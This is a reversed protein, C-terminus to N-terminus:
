SASYLQLVREERMVCRYFSKCTVTATQMSEVLMSRLWSDDGGDAPAPTTKAIRLISFTDHPHMKVYGCYNIEETGLFFMTHMFYEVIKGITYDENQLIVDFSNAMTSDARKINIKDRLLNIRQILIAIGRKLLDTNSFVGITQVRMDFSLPICYRQGDLLQWDRYAFDKEGIPGKYNEEFAQRSREVDVTNAFSCTGVSTYSADERGTHVSLRATFHIKDGPFKSSLAPRLRLLDIFGKTQKNRPFILSSPIM